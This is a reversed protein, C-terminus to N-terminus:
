IFEKTLRLVERYASGAEAFLEHRSRPIHIWEIPTTMVQNAKEGWRLIEANNVIREDEALLIRIPASIKKIQEEQFVFDIAQFSALGWGCTVGEAYFPYQYRKFFKKASHTYVNNEFVRKTQLSQAFHKSSLGLKVAAKAIVKLISSPLPHCVGLFPASFIMKEPKIYGSMHAYLSILAGMSHAAISYPSSGVVLAILEQLDKAPKNYDEFHLAPKGESLGHSRHDLTLFGVSEDLELDKPLYDYREIFESHGNLFVLWRNVNPKKKFVGYRLNTGDSSRLYSIEWFVRFGTEPNQNKVEQM